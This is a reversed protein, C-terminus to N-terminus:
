TPKKALYDSFYALMKNRMHVFGVVSRNRLIMVYQIFELTKMKTGLVLELNLRFSVQQTSPNYPHPSSDFINTKTNEHLKSGLSPIM